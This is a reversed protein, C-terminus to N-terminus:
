SRMIKLPMSTESFAPFTDFVVFARSTWLSGTGGFDNFLKRRRHKVVHKLCRRSSISFMQKTEDKKRM